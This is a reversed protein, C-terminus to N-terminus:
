PLYKRKGAIYITGWYLVAFITLSILTNALGNIDPIFSSIMLTLGVAMLLIGALRLLYQRRPIGNIV